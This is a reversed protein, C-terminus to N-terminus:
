SSAGLLRLENGNSESTLVAVVDVGLVGLDAFFHDKKPWSIAEPSDDGFDLGVLEADEALSDLFASVAGEDGSIVGSTGNGVISGVIELRDEIDRFGLLFCFFTLNHAPDIRDRFDLCRFCFNDRREGVGGRRYVEGM